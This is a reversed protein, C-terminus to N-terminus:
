KYRYLKLLYIVSIRGRRAIFRRLANIFGETSLSQVLEFHCAKYVACIFIVVWTKKGDKLFLPGSLNIGTLQFPDVKYVRNKPLPAFPVVLTKAKFRKCTVFKSIVHKVIQRQMVVMEIVNKM